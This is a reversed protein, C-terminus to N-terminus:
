AFAKVSKMQKSFLCRRKWRSYVQTFRDPSAKFSCVSHHIHIQDFVASSDADRRAAACERRTEDKASHTQQCRLAAPSCGQLHKGELQANRRRDAEEGKRRKGMKSQKACDVCVVLESATGAPVPASVCVCVFLVCVKLRAACHSVREASGSQQPEDEM